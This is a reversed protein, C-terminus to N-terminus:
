TQVVSLAEEGDRIVAPASTCIPLGDRHAKKNVPM